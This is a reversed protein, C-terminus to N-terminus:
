SWATTYASAFFASLFRMGFFGFITHTNSLSFCKLPFSYTHLWRPFGCTCQIFQHFHFSLFCPLLLLVRGKSEFKIKIFLVSMVKKGLFIYAYFTLFFNTTPFLFRTKNPAVTYNRKENQEIDVLRLLLLSEVGINLHIILTFLTFLFCFPSLFGPPSFFTSIYLTKINNAKRNNASRM